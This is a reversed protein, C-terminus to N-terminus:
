ATVAGKLNNIFRSETEECWAKYQILIDKNTELGNKIKKYNDIVTNLSLKTIFTESVSSLIDRTEKAPKIYIRDVEEIYTDLKTILEEVKSYNIAAIGTNHDYGENIHVFCDSIRPRHDIILKKAIHIGRIQTVIVYTSKLFSLTSYIYYLVKDDKLSKKLYTDTGSIMIDFIDIKMADLREILYIYFTLDKDVPLEKNVAFQLISMIGYCAAERSGPNLKEVNLYLERVYRGVNGQGEVFNALKGTKIDYIPVVFHAKSIDIENYYGKYWRINEPKYLPVGFPNVYDNAENLKYMKNQYEYFKEKGINNLIDDLTEPSVGPGNIGFCLDFKDGYIMMVLAAFSDGKSHGGVTFIRGVWEDGKKEILEEIFKLSEVEMASLHNYVNGNKDVYNLAYYTGGIVIEANDIWSGDPTGRYVVNVEDGKIFVAAQMGKSPYDENGNNDYDKWSMNSITVDKLYENHEMMGELYEIQEKLAEQDKGDKLTSMYRKANKLVDKMNDNDNIDIKDLPLYLIENYFVENIITGESVYNGDGPVVANEGM